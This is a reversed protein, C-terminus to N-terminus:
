NSVSKPNEPSRRQTAKRAGTYYGVTLLPKLDDPMEKLAAEYEKPMFFDTRPKDKPLMPFHPVLNRPYRNEQVQLWFMRRLTRLSGNIGSNSIGASQRARIFDKLKDTAVKEAIQSKSM